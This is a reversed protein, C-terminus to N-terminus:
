IALNWANRWVAAALLPGCSVTTSRAIDRTGQDITDTVYIRDIPAQALTARAAGSFVGHTAGIIVPNAGADRLRTAAAVVTGGTGIEDDLLFAPRGRVSDGALPTMDVATPTVRHKTLEALGLQPWHRRVPELRKAAGADTAILVTEAARPGLDALVREVLLPAASVQRVLGPAGAMAIQPAHLDVGLILDGRNLNGATRILEVILNPLAFGRHEDKDSRAYFFYPCIVTIRRPRCGQVHGLLVLLEELARDEGASQFVYADTGALDEEPLAIRVNGDPYRRISEAGIVRTGCAHRDHAARWEASLPVDALIRGRLPADALARAVEAVLSRSSSGPVLRISGNLNLPVGRPATPDVSM